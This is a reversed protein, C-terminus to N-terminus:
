RKCAKYVNCYSKCKNGGWTERDSCMPPVTRTALARLIDNSKKKFFNIVDDDPLIKIPITYCKKVVGRDKAVRTDGDRVIAHIDLYDPVPLKGDMIILM